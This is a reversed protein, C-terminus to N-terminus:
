GVIQINTQGTLHSWAQWHDQDFPDEISVVPYENIFEQYLASLQEGTLQPFLSIFAISTFHSVLHCDVACNEFLVRLLRCFWTVYGNVQILIKTKSTWIM